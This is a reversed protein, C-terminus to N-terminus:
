RGAYKKTYYKYIKDLVSKLETKDEKSVLMELLLDELNKIIQYSYKMRLQYPSEEIEYQFITFDQQAKIESKILATRFFEKDVDFYKSSLEAIDYIIEIQTKTPHFISYDSNVRDIKERDLKIM